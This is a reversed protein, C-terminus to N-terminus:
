YVPTIGLLHFCKRMVITTAECLLLRSTEEKSGIVQCNNYFRSYQESLGYLYESLVHPLLKTCAEEVTESFRLLHLGLAREDAHDFVLKGATKLEDIDKGSKRIISCIRAHAYLLYVATKGKDRLMQDYSFSYSTLRNNKLDAFKLAGYGVAEATEDLEKPTWEKDKGREILARKSYYKAVDLLGVLSFTEAYHSNFRRGDGGLVAGFGVHSARPYTTDNTPLWGAKRAAKFLKVFHERQGADTVYIIWDAKEENLRYRLWASKQM